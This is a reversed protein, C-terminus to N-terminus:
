RPGRSVSRTRSPRSSRAVSPRRTKKPAFLPLCYAVQPCLKWRRAKLYVCSLDGNREVILRHPFARFGSTWEELVEYKM